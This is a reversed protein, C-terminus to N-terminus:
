EYVDCLQFQNGPMWNHTIFGAFDCAGRYTTPMIPFEYYPGSVWLGFGEHNAFGHPYGGVQQGRRLIECAFRNQPLAHLSSDYIYGGHCDIFEGLAGLVPLFVLFSTSRM